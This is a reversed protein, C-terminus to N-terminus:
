PHSEGGFQAEQRGLSVSTVASNDSENSCQSAKATGVQGIGSRIGEFGVASMMKAAM